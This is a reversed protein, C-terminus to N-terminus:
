AEEDLRVTPVYTKYGTMAKRSKRVEYIEKMVNSKERDILSLISLDQDIIRMVYENKIKLQQALHLKEESSFEDDATELHKQEVEIQGDIYKIVNLIGDRNSYFSQLNDFQGESMSAIETENMSYFKELYHNKQEYLEIIRLM